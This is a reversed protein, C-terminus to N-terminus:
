RVKKNAWNFILASMYGTAYASALCGLTALLLITPNTWFGPYILDVGSPQRLLGHWIYALATWISDVLLFTIALARPNIKDTM